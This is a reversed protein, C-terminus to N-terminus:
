LKVSAPFSCGVERLIQNAMGCWCRMATPIGLATCYKSMMVAPDSLLDDSDIIVPNPDLNEKVYKWLDYHEKFLCGPYIHRKHVDKWIHFNEWTKPTTMAESPVAFAVDFM